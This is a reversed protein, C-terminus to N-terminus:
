RQIPFLHLRSVVMVMMVVVVVVIVVVVVVFFWLLILLGRESLMDFINLLCVLPSSFM